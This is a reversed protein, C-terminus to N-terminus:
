ALHLMSRTWISSILREAEKFAVGGKGRCTEPLWSDARKDAQLGGNKRQQDKGKRRVVGKSQEQAWNEKLM